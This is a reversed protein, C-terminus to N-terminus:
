ARLRPFHLKLWVAALDFTAAWALEVVRFSVGRGQYNQQNFGM